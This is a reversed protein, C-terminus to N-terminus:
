LIRRSVEAVDIIGGQTPVLAAAGILSVDDGLEAPVIPVIYEPDRVYQEVTQRLPEFLMNGLGIAVGGGLVVVDPNFMHLLGVIGLGMVRAVYAVIEGALADGSVAALGVHRGIIASLDGKVMDDIMSERGQEIFMRARRAMSPGACEMEISSVRGGDVIIPVHGAEAALGARGLLMRGDVIVGSGVGTSQTLFVVNRYEERKAAGLMSEALAAVNADNGLYTPLNYERKVIDVLPVNHWGPLNPPAVVVGTWPNLPGPASIGIGEVEDAEDGQPMVERIVKIIRDLTANLGEKANTPTAYRTVIKLNEDLRAARLQTGGMDISIITKSM